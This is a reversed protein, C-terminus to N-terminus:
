LDNWEIEYENLEDDIYETIKPLYDDPRELFSIIDSPYRFYNWFKDLPKIFSLADETYEIVTYFDAIPKSEIMEKLKTLDRLKDNQEWARSTLWRQTRNLYEKDKITTDTHTMYRDKGYNFLSSAYGMDRKSERYKIAEQENYFKKYEM